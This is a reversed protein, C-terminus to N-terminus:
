VTVEGFIGDLFADIKFPDLEPDNRDEVLENVVQGILIGADEEQGALILNEVEQWMQTKM